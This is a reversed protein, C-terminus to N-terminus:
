MVQRKSISEIKPIPIVFYESPGDTVSEGFPWEDRTLIPYLERSQDFGSYHAM